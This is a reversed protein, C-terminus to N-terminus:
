FAGEYRYYFRSEPAVDGKIYFDTVDGTPDVNDFWKFDITFEPQDLGSMKRPVALLLRDGDVCLEASGVAEWEGSDTKREITALNGSPATRNILFVKKGAGNQKSDNSVVEMQLTMWNPEGQGVIPERTKALFYVQEADHAVKLERFDNRGSRETYHLTGCGPYDRPVTEFAHDQYSKSAAEWLSALRDADSAPAKIGATPGEAEPMGKFRRVNSVMQCYYNDGYGGRMMEIDRSFELNFQDCFVAPKAPDAELQCAIWENWGTLFVIEPDLEFARTWQEQINYGYLYDDPKEARHGEHFSRGRANGTSMMEVKGSEWHLNQGVSVNVEEPKQPDKDYSYVQPYTAEWHWENHTDVLDFPWHAKRLTFFEKIEEDADAPDCIMLPRDQWRFWLEPYLGPKYLKEYIKKATAGAQTNVMFVIKPVKTGERRLEDFVKCLALYTEDYTVANTTDFVLFDVGADALLYAHRRLVWPDHSRYYGFLPEGWFHAQNLTGWPPNTAKRLADPKEALIQTNDNVYPFDLWLFYFIGVQKEPQLSRVEGPMPVHRLLSDTMPGQFGPNVDSTGIEVAPLVTPLVVFLGLILLAVSTMIPFIKTM